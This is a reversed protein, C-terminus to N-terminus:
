IISHPLKKELQGLHIQLHQSNEYIYICITLFPQIQKLAPVKMCPPWGKLRSRYTIWLCILYIQLVDLQLSSRVHSSSSSGLDWCCFFSLWFCDSLSGDIHWSSLDCAHFLRLLNQHATWLVPFVPCGMSHLVITPMSRHLNDRM